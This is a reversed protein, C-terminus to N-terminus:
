QFQPYPKLYESRFAYYVFDYGEILEEYSPGNWSYPLQEFWIEYVIADNTVNYKSIYYDSPEVEVVDVPDMGLEEVINWIDDITTWSKSYVEIMQHYPLNNYREIQEELRKDYEIEDQIKGYIFFWIFWIIAVLLVVLIWLSISRKM